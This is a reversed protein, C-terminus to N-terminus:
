VGKYLRMQYSVVGMDGECTQSWQMNGYEKVYVFSTPGKHSSICRWLTHLLM